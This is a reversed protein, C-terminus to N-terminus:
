RHKALTRAFPAAAPSDITRRRNSLLYVKVLGAIILLVAMAFGSAVAVANSSNMLALIAWCYLSIGAIWESRNRVWNGFRRGMRSTLGLLPMLTMVLLRGSALVGILIIAGAVFGFFIEIGAFFM